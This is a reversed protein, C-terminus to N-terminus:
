LNLLVKIAETNKQKEIRLLDKIFLGIPHTTNIVNTTKM